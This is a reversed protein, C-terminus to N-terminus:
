INCGTSRLYQHLIANSQSGQYQLLLAGNCNYVFTNHVVPINLSHIDSVASLSFHIQIVYHPRPHTMAGQVQATASMVPCWVKTMARFKEYTKYM